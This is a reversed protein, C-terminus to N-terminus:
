RELACVLRGLRSFLPFIWITILLIIKRHISKQQCVAARIYSNWKRRNISQRIQGVSVGFENFLLQTNYGVTFNRKFLGKYTDSNNHRVLISPDYFIRPSKNYLRLGLEVDECYISLRTNFQFLKIFHSLFAANRFDIVAGSKLQCVTKLSPIYQLVWRYYYVDEVCSTVSTPDIPRTLGIVGNPTYKLFHRRINSLWDPGAVCDDDIFASIKGRALRICMNRGFSLGRRKEICYKIPIRNKFRECVYKTEVSPGNDVIIVEFPKVTQRCLSLLCKSLAEPRNRTSILISITQKEM